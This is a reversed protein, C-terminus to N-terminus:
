YAKLPQAMEKVRLGDYLTVSRKKLFHSLPGHSLLNRDELALERRYEYLHGDIALISTPHKM